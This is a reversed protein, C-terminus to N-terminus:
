SKVELSVPEPGPAGSAVTTSIESWAPTTAAELEAITVPKLPSRVTDPGWGRLQQLAPGCIRAQCAGMGARTYLKAARPGEVDAIESLTGLTVDECRCVITEPRALLRLEPRLAFTRELDRRLAMGRARARRLRDTPARHTAALGAIEGQALASEVGAIGTPEGACFVGPITTEQDDSVRVFGEELQCELHRPLEHNPSLGYGVALVDVAIRESRAGALQVERVRDDGIAEAVWTGPRFPTELFAARHRAADIAKGPWNRAFRLLSALPAQEAVAIVQAGATTLTAAVPLLLPGSGALLVRRGEFRAGQKSLAQVGGLGLVNPLTWGPFPLFLERAGTAIIIARCRVRSSVEGRSVWLTVRTPRDIGSAFAAGEVVAADWVAGGGILRAGSRALRELWARAAGSPGGAHRWIQGGPLPNEDILLVSTGSEAAVAAAAIGAPGGGVVAVDCAIEPELPDPRVARHMCARVQGRGELSTRCEFCVGMGCLPGRPSGTVSTRNAVVGDNWLAASTTEPSDTTERPTM